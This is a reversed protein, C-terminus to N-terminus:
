RTVRGRLRKWGSRVSEAVTHATRLRCV